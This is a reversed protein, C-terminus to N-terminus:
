PSCLTLWTREFCWSRIACKQARRPKRRRLAIGQTRCSFMTQESRKVIFLLATKKTITHNEENQVIHLLNLPQAISFILGAPRKDAAVLNATLSDLGREVCEVSAYFSKPDCAIYVRDPM